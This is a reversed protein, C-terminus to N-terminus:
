LEFSMDSDGVITGGTSSSGSDGTQETVNWPPPSPAQAQSPHAATAPRKLMGSSGVPPKVAAQTNVKTKAAKAAKAAAIIEAGGPLETIAQNALEDCRENEPHGTHGRVWEFTVKRQICEADLIKWLEQNKVEGGTSAQWGRRKWGAMWETIGKIVYQSDTTLRVTAGIPTNQLATIAGMLEMKNNTTGLEGGRKEVRSGNPLEVVCGWGGPGPNGKCAGDSYAFYTM